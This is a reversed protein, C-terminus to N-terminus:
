FHLIGGNWLGSVWVPLPDCVKYPSIQLICKPKELDWVRWILFELSRRGRSQAIETSMVLWGSGEKGTTDERKAMWSQSDLKEPSTGSRDERCGTNEGKGQSGGVGKRDCGVEWIDM